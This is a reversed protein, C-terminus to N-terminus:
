VGAEATVRFNLWVIRDTKEGRKSEKRQRGDQNSKEQHLSPLPDPHNCLFPLPRRGSEGSVYEPGDEPKRPHLIREGAALRGSIWPDAWSPLPM